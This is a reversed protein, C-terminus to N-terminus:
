WRRRRLSARSLEGESRSMEEELDTVSLQMEGGAELRDVSADLELDEGGLVQWCGGRRESLTPTVPFWDFGTVAPTVVM